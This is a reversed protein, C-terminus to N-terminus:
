NTRKTRSFTKWRELLDVLEKPTLVILDPFKKKLRSSRFDKVNRTLFIDRKFIYHISMHMIDYAARKRANESLKNLDPFMATQFEKNCDFIDKGERVTGMEGLAFRGLTAKGLVAPTMPVLKEYFEFQEKLKARVSPPSREHFEIEMAETGKMEIIGKKSWNELKTMANRKVKDLCGYDVTLTIREGKKWKEELKELPGM